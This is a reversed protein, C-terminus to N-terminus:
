ESTRRSSGHGSPLPGEPHSACPKPAPLVRPWHGSLQVGPGADTSADATSRRGAASEGLGVVVAQSVRAAPQGGLQVQGDLLALPPWEREQGSRTVPMVTRLRCCTSAGWSNRTGWVAPRAAVSVRLSNGCASVVARRVAGGPKAVFRVDSAGTGGVVVGPAGPSGRQAPCPRTGSPLRQARAVRNGTRRHVFAREEPHLGHAPRVFHSDTMRRALGRLCARPRRTIRRPRRPGRGV